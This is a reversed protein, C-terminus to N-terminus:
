GTRQPRMQRTRAYVNVGAAFLALAAGFMSVAVWGGENWAITAGASGLSGGLFM